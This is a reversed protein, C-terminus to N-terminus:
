GRQKLCELIAAMLADPAEAAPAPPALFAGRRSADAYPTASSSGAAVPSIPQAVVRFQGRIEGTGRETMNARDIM